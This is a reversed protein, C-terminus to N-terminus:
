QQCRYKNCSSLQCFTRAKLLFCLLDQTLMRHSHCNKPLKCLPIFDCRTIQKSCLMQGELVQSVSAGQPLGVLMRGLVAERSLVSGTWYVREVAPGRDLTAAASSGDSLSPHNSPDTGAEQSPQRPPSPRVMRPPGSLKPVETSATSPTHNDDKVLDKGHAAQKGGEPLSGYSTSAGEQSRQRDLTTYLAADTDIFNGKDSSRASDRDLVAGISHQGLDTRLFSVIKSSVHSSRRYIGNGSIYQVRVIRSLDVPKNRKQWEVCRGCRQQQQQM